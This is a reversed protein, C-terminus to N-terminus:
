LWGGCCCTVPVRAFFPKWIVHNASGGSTGSGLELRPLLTLLKMEWIERFVESGTGVYKLM